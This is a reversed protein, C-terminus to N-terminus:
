VLPEVLRLLEDGMRPAARQPVMGFAYEHQFANEAHRDAVGISLVTGNTEDALLMDALVKATNGGDGVPCPEDTDFGSHRATM